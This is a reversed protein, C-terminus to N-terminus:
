FAENHKPAVYRSGEAKDKVAKMVNDRYETAMKHVESPSVKFRKSLGEWDAKIGPKGSMARKSRGVASFLEKHNEDPFEIDVPGNAGRWVKATKGPTPTTPEPYNVANYLAQEVPATRANHAMRAQQLNRSMSNMENNISEGAGPGGNSKLIYPEGTKPNINSKMKPNTAGM